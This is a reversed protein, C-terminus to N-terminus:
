LGLRLGISFRHYQAEQTACHNLASYQLELQAMLTGPNAGWARDYGAAVPLATPCHVIPRADDPDPLAQDTPTNIITEDRVLSEPPPGPAIGALWPPWTCPTEESVNTRSAEPNSARQNHKPPRM